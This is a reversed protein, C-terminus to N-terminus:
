LINIGVVFSVFNHSNAINWQELLDRKFGYRVEGSFRDNYKYGIGLNSNTGSDIEFDNSTKVQSDSSPNDLTLLGNVFLRSSESLIFYHRIGFSIEISQYSIEAEERTVNWERERPGTTEYKQFVPELLIAWRQNNGPLIFEFEAGLRISPTKDFTAQTPSGSFSRKTEYNVLRVGPRIAIRVQIKKGEEGKYIVSETGQCENYENTVRVLDNKNYRIETLRDITIDGCVINQMLQRRFLTNKATLGTEPKKYIKYILSIPEKHNMSLFFRRLDSNKYTLLSAEGEVLYRLFHTENKFEPEKKSSLKETKNSSYDLDITWRIFKTEGVSFEAIDDIRGKSADDSASMKYQFERPNDIWGENKILCNIKEGNNDIFYGEQFLEQSMSTFSFTVLFLLLFKNKM